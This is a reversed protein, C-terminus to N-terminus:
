TKWNVGTAAKEKQGAAKERVNRRSGGGSFHEDYHVNQLVQSKARSRNLASRASIFRAMIM